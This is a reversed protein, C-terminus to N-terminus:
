MAEREFGKLKSLSVRYGSGYVPNTDSHGYASNMKTISSEKCIRYLEMFPVVYSALISVSLMKKLEAVTRVRNTAVNHSWVYYWLNKSKCFEFDKELRGAYVLMQKSLGVAKVEFYGADSSVDPCYDCRSDTRHRVGNDEFFEGIVTRILGHNGYTLKYEDTDFLVPHSISKPKSIKM